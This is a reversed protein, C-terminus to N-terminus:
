PNNTVEIPSDFYTRTTPYAFSVAPEGGVADLISRWLTSKVMRRQRVNVLYRGILTVGHDDVRIFVDSDLEGITLRYDRATQWIGESAEEKAEPVATRIAQRLLEEGREWSSEFTVTFGIEEWIYDFGETYNALDDTFIVGNPVHVLRGTIQDGEVWNGVEMLTFRFLRVDAVDGHRGRVEIRDGVQFPKRTMIYAWGAMNKLLDGLAIAIGASLLGLFTTLSAFADIWIFLLSILATVTIAANTLKTARYQSEVDELQPRLWRLIAWRLTILGAVVVFSIVAQEVTRDAIGLTDALWEM